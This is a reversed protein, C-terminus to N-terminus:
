FCRLFLGLSPIKIKRTGAARHVLQKLSSNEWLALWLSIFTGLYETTIADSTTCWRELPIKHTWGRVHDGAENLLLSTCATCTKPGWYVRKIELESESSDSTKALSSQRKKLRSFMRSPFSRLLFGASCCSSPVCLPVQTQSLYKETLMHLFWEM